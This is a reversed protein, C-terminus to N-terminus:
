QGSPVIEGSLGFPQCLQRRLRFFRFLKHGGINGQCPAHPAVPFLDKPQIAFREKLQKGLILGVCAFSSELFLTMGNWVEVRRIRKNQYRLSWCALQGSERPAHHAVGPRLAHVESLEGNHPLSRPIPSPSASMRRNKASM